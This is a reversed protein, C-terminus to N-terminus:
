KDLSEGSIKAVRVKKGNEIKYGVRTPKGSKPDLPMVNSVHIAAEKSIIGGQPNLQSPKSHKKVINIGEVLVRNQKPYASLITGQKGKDKGSIVVVKDGKKVHM